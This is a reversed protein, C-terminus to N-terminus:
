NRILIYNILDGLILEIGYEYVDASYKREEIIGKVILKETIKKSICVILILAAKGETRRIYHRKRKVDRHIQNRQM